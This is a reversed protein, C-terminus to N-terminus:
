ATEGCALDDCPKHFATKRFGFQYKHLINHKTIFDLLLNYMAKEMIKSFVSLVSISRYNKINQKDNAKFIPVVVKAIKFEDPFIGNKISSNVLHILPKIFLQVNQKLIHAPVEDHGASTNKLIKIAAVIETESITPIVISNLIGKVNTLPNTFNSFNNALKPGINM